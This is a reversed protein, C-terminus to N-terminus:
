ESRRVSARASQTGAELGPTSLIRERGATLLSGLVGNVFRPSAEAGFKKALEVAENVIVKPPTDPDFMVEFIAIRLINRDIAAIQDVPWEPALHALVRDLGETHDVVGEVLHYAFVTAAQPLPRERFRSGLAHEPMHDSFDLEYLVQLTIMRAHFRGKM